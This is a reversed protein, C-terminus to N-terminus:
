VLWVHVPVFTISMTLGTLEGLHFVSVIFFNKIILDETVTLSEASNIHATHGPGQSVLIVQVDRSLTHEVGSHPGGHGIGVADTSLNM